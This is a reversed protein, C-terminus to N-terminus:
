ASPKAKLAVRIMAALNQEVEALLRERVPLAQGLKAQIAETSFDDHQVPSRGRNSPHAQPIPLGGPECQMGVGLEITYSAAVLVAVMGIVEM